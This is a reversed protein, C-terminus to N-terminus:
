RLVTSVLVQTFREIPLPSCDGRPRVSGEFHLARDPLPAVFDARSRLGAVDDVYAAAGSLAKSVAWGSIHGASSLSTSGTVRPSRSDGSRQVQLLVWASAASSNVCCPMRILSLDAGVIREDADADVMVRRDERDRRDGRPPVLDARLPVRLCALDEDGGVRAAAVAVSRMEPLVLQLPERVLETDGDADAVERRSGALPVLDLVPQEREDRDVPAAARQAGVLGDDIQDRVRRVTAAQDNTRPEIPPTVRDALRDRSLLEALQVDLPIGEKAIPVVHESRPLM